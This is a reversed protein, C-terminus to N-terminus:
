FNFAIDLFPAFHIGQNFMRSPASTASAGALGYVIPPRPGAGLWDNFPEFYTGTVAMLNGRSDISRCSAREPPMIAGLQGSPELM